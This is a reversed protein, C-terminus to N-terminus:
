VTFNLDPVVTKGFIIVVKTCIAVYTVNMAVNIYRGVYIFFFRKAATARKRVTAVAAMAWGGPGGGPAL